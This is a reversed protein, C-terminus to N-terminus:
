LGSYHPKLPIRCCQSGRSAQKRLPVDEFNAWTPAHAPIEESRRQISKERLDAGIQDIGLLPSAPECSLEAKLNKLLWWSTKWHSNEGVVRLGLAGTEGDGALEKRTKM